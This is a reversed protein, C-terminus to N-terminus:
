QFNNYPSIYTTNLNGHMNPKDYNNEDIVGLIISRENLYFFNAFLTKMLCSYYGKDVNNLQNRPKEIDKYKVLKTLFDSNQNLPLPYPFQGPRVDEPELQRIRLSNINTRSLPSDQFMQTFPSDGNNFKLWFNCDQLPSDIQLSNKIKITPPFINPSDITNDSSYVTMDTIFSTKRDRRILFANNDLDFVKMKAYNMEEILNDDNLSEGTESKANNNSMLSCDNMSDESEYNSREPKTNYQDNIM